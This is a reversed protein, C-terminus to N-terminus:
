IRTYRLTATLLVGDMVAETNMRVSVASTAKLYVVPSESPDM